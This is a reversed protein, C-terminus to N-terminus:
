LPNKIIELFHCFEKQGNHLHFLDMYQNLHKLIIYHMHIQLFKIELEILFLM